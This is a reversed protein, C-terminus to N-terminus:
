SPKENKTLRSPDPEVRGTNVTSPVKFAVAAVTKAMRRTEVSIRLLKTGLIQHQSPANELLGLQQWSPPAFPAFKDWRTM